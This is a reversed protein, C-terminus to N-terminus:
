GSKEITKLMKMNQQMIRYEKGNSCNINWEADNNSEEKEAINKYLSTANSKLL